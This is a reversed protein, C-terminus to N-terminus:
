PKKVSLSLVRSAFYVPQETGDDSKQSLVTELGYQSADRSLELEKNPDYHILMLHDKLLKNLSM